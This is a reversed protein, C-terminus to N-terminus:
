HGAGCISHRPAKHKRPAFFGPSCSGAILLFVLMIVALIVYFVPDYRLPRM